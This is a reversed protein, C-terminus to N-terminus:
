GRGRHSRPGCATSHPMVMELEEVRLQRRCKLSVRHEKAEQLTDNRVTTSLCIVVDVRGFFPLLDSVPQLRSPLGSLAPSPWPM